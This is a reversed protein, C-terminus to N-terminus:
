EKPPAPAAPASADPVIPADAPAAGDFRVAGAAIEADLRAMEAKLAASPPRLADADSPEPANMVPPMPPDSFIMSLLSTRKGSRAKEAYRQLAPSVETVGALAISDGDATDVIAQCNPCTTASAPISTSCWPCLRQPGAAKKRSGKKGRTEVPAAPAPSAPPAAPAAPVAPAAPAAPAAPIPADPAEAAVALDIPAAPDAPAEYVAPTMGAQRYTDGLGTAIAERHILEGGLWVFAAGAVVPLGFFRGLADPVLAIGAIAMGIALARLNRRPDPAVMAMAMPVALLIAAAVFIWLVVAGTIGYVDTPPLADEKHALGLFQSEVLGAMVGLGLSVWGM